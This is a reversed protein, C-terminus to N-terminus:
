RKPIAQIPTSDQEPHLPTQRDATDEVIAALFTAYLGTAVRPVITLLFKANLEM